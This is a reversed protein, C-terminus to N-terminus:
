MRWEVAIDDENRSRVFLRAPHVTSSPHDALVRFRETAGPKQEVFSAVSGDIAVAFPERDLHRLLGREPELECDRALRSM